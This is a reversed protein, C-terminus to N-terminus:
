VYSQLYATALGAFFGFIHGEWSVGKKFSVLNLALGSFYYLSVLALLIATVTGQNVVNMLLYGWYGMILSSAGIHLAPRGILWVASGSLLIISLSVRYFDPWGNLSVFNALLLLPISNFFLHNFNGHLFPSFIIGLLGHWTRPYIGLLNLRYGLLVNCFHVIWIGLVFLLMTPMHAKLINVIEPLTTVLSDM